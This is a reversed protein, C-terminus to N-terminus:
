DPQAAWWSRLQAIAQTETLPGHEIRLALLHNLAQGVAPGPGLGLVTMVTSGDLDPRITGLDESAALEAIRRELADIHDSIAVAAPELREAADARALEILEGLLGDAGSVLRRIAGDTAPGVEGGVRPYMRVLRSVASIDARPYRLARMRNETVSAASQEHQDVHHGGTAGDPTIPKGIAHFLAALRVLRNPRTRAIVRITHDFIDTERYDPDNLGSMAVVEPIFEDALGTSLLFRLGASPDRVALLKDLEDRIREVSVISLRDTLEEVATVLEPEPVLDYGAIFRAARLMRLPDDTFSEIPDLPTRLRRAILDSAGGFPDILEPEPLTVAMANVTFDRRSLDELVNDSFTVEPLRSESVYAEARHTTVEFVQDGIRAGITGFREGQSWLAAVSGSLAAKIQPPRADTTLDIDTGRDRDLLLDRVIGGVLYITHGAAVLQEVVPGAEALVAELREPNV